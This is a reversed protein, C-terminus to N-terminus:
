HLRSSIKISNGVPFLLPICCLGRELTPMTFRTTTSWAQLFRLACLTMFHDLNAIDLGVTDSRRVLSQHPLRRGLGSVRCILSARNKPSASPQDSERPRRFWLYSRTFLATVPANDMIIGRFEGKYIVGEQSLLHKMDAM